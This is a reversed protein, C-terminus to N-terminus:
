ETRVMVTVVGWADRSHGETVSLPTFRWRKLFRIAELDIEPYGSSIAPTADYVIGNQAVFFKLELRYDERDGYLGRPIVPAKPKFIIERKRAPGEVLSLLQKDNSKSVFNKINKTIYRPIEKKGKAYNRIFGFRKSM